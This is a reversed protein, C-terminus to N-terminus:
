NNNWKVNPDDRLRKSDEVNKTKFDITDKEGVLVKVSVTGDPHLKGTNKIFTSDSNGSNGSSNTKESNSTSPETESNGEQANSNSEGSFESTLGFLAGLANAIREMVGGSPASKVSPLDANIIGVIQDGTTGTDMVGSDNPTELIVGAPQSNGSNSTSSKTNSGFFNEVATQIFGLKKQMESYFVSQSSTPCCNKPAMGDPDIFRMPNNFAYNYPSHRRMQESLPDIVGWRGIAPDNM